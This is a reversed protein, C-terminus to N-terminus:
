KSSSRPVLARVQVATRHAQHRHGAAPLGATPVRPVRRLDHMRQAAPRGRQPQRDVAADGIEVLLTVGVVVGRPPPATIAPCNISKACRQRAFQGRGPRDAPM